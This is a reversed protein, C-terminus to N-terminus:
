PFFKYTLYVHKQHLYLVDLACACYYDHWVDNHLTESAYQKNKDCLRGTENDFVSKVHFIIQSVIIKWTFKCCICIISSFLSKQIM